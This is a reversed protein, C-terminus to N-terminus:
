KRVKRRSLAAAGAALVAATGWLFTMPSDGTRVASGASVSTGEASGAGSRGASDTQEAATGQEATDGTSQTGGSAQAGDTNGTNETNETNGPTQADESSQVLRSMAEQLASAASDVEEQVAESNDYVAQAEALASLVAQFSAAEYDAENLGSASQILEALADKDPTLRMESMEKLLRM